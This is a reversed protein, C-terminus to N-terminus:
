AEHTLRMHRASLSRIVSIFVVNAALSVLTSVATGTAHETLQKAFTTSSDGLDVESFLGGAGLLVLSLLASALTLAFWVVISRDVTQSRWAVDGASVEPDSGRWHERLMLFTIINLTCGGLIWVVIALPPKWSLPARGYTRLNGAIRFSWIILVVILALSLGGALLSVMGFGGTADDFDKKTIAGDLYARAEDRLTLQIVLVILSVAITIGQLVVAANALGGIRQFQGSMAAGPAGYAIYGPPPAMPGSTPDTPM